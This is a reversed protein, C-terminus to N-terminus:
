TLIRRMFWIIGVGVIATGLGTLRLNESPQAMVLLMMKKMGNPFLAYLAGELALILGFALGIEEM